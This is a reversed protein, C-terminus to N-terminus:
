AVEDESESEDDDELGFVEAWGSAIARDRYYTLLQVMTSDEPVDAGQSIATTIERKADIIAALQTDITKDALLYYIAAGHLDNVRGWIRDEAQDHTAPNWGLSLFALHHAATLTISQGGAQLMCLILRCEPDTQFRDINGQRFEPTQGGRIIAARPFAKHIQDQVKLHSTFFVLKQDGSESM